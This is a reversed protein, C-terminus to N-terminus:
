IQRVRCATSELRRFDDLSAGCRGFFLVFSLLDDDAVACSATWVLRWVLWIVYREVSIRFELNRNPDIGTENLDIRTWEPRDRGM